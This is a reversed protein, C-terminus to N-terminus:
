HPLEGSFTVFGGLKSKEPSLRSNLGDVKSFQDLQDQPKCSRQVFERPWILSNPGDLQSFFANTGQCVEKSVMGRVHTFCVALMASRSGCKAQAQDTSSSGTEDVCEQRKEEGVRTAVHDVPKMALHPGPAAATRDVPLLALRLLSSRLGGACNATSTKSAARRGCKAYGARKVAESSFQNKESALM